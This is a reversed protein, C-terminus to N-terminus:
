WDAEPASAVAPSTKRYGPDRGLFEIEREGTLHAPTIVYDGRVSPTLVVKAVDADGGSFVFALGGTTAGAIAYLVKVPGYVLSVLVAGLGLGAESAMDGAEASAMTASGLLGAACILALASSRWSRRGASDTRGAAAGFDLMNM